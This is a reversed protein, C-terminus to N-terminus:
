ENELLDEVLAYFNYLLLFVKKCDRQTVNRHLMGHDVFNRNIESPQIKFDNGKEFITSLSSLVSYKYLVDAFTMEIMEKAEVNEFFINAGKFGYPRWKGEQMVQLRIIRADILSFLIMICSKYRKDEYDAIAERLDSKRIHKMKLLMDFLLQMGAKNIYPKVKEYADKEDSPAEFFLELEANPPLTWGFDGWKTYSNQLSKKREDSLLPSKISESFTKIFRAMGNAFQSYDPLMRRMAEGLEQAVYRLSSQMMIYHEKKIFDISEVWQPRILSDPISPVVMKISNAFDQLAPRISEVMQKGLDSTRKKLCLIFRTPIYATEIDSYISLLEESSGIYANVFKGLESEDIEESNIVNDSFDILHAFLIFLSMEKYDIPESEFDFSSIYQM